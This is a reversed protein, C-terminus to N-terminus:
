RHGEKGRREGELGGRARWGGARGSEREGEVIVREKESELGQRERARKEKAGSKFM